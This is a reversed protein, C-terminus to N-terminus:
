FERQGPKSEAKMEEHTEWLFWCLTSASGVALKAHRADLGSFSNSRGHGTGMKNRITALQHPMQSLNGLLRKTAEEVVSNNVGKPLMDLIDTTEKILRPIEWGEDVNVNNEELITKCCSEVLEKAKGIADTPNTEVSKQMQDIQSRMYESTFARKLDEAQKQITSTAGVERWAFVPKNALRKIEYLEYGESRIIRQIEELYYKEACDDDEVSSKTVAPHFVECLFRLFEYDEARLINFRGDTFVWDSDWDGWSTHCRIDGEADRYRYDHSKMSSLDYLRSLFDVDDLRGSWSIMATKGDPLTVGCNFLDQIDRRAVESLKKMTAGLRIITSLKMKKAPGILSDAFIVVIITETKAKFSLQRTNVM